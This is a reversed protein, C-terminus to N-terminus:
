EVYQIEPERPGASPPVTEPGEYGVLLGLHATAGDALGARRALDPDANIALTPTIAYVSGLGLATAAFAATAAAAAANVASFPASEPASFVLLAPAGYLPQYGPIAARSVLFDNSSAKMAALAKDNVEQILAANTVISIALPGASPPEYASEAIKTLKEKEVPTALYSRVSKRAKIVSFFDTM